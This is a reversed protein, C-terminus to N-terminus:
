VTPGSRTPARSPTPWSRESQRRRRSRPHARSRGTPPSPKSRSSSARLVDAAAPNVASATVIADSQNSVSPPTARSSANMSGRSCRNWGRQRAPPIRVPLVSSTVRREVAFALVGVQECSDGSRWAVQLWGTASTTTNEFSKALRRSAASAATPSRSAGPTGSPASCRSSTTGGSGACRSTTTGASGRVTAAGFWRHVNAPRAGATDVVRSDNRANLVPAAGVGVVAVVVVGVPARGSWRASAREGHPLPGGHHPPLPVRVWFGSLLQSSLCPRAPARSM